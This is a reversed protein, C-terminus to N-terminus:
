SSFKDRIILREKNKDIKGPKIYKGKCKDITITRNM